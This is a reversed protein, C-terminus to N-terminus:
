MKSWFVESWYLPWFVVCIILAVSKQFRDLEKFSRIYKVAHGFTVVVGILYVTLLLKM